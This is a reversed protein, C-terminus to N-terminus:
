KACNPGESEKIKPLLHSDKEVQEVWLIRTKMAVAQRGENPPCGKLWFQAAFRAKRMSRYDHEIFRFEKDNGNARRIFRVTITKPMTNRM